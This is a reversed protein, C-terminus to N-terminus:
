RATPQTITVPFWILSLVRPVLKEERKTKDGTVTGCCVALYLKDSTEKREYVSM